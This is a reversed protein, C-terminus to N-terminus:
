IDAEDVDIQGTMKRWIHSWSMGVAMITAVVILGIWIMIDATVWDSGAYTIVVWGCVVFLLVLLGIGFKGISRMTAWFYIVFGILLVVALLAKLPLDQNFGTTQVWGVLSWDTPNFTAMVLVLAVVWRVAFGTTTFSSAM